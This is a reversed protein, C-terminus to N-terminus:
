HGRFFMVYALVAAANVTTLIAIKGILDRCQDSCSELPRNVWELLRIPLPGAAQNQEVEVEPATAPAANGALAAGGSVAADELMEQALADAVSPEPDPLPTPASAAPAAVAEVPGAPGAGDLQTFLANLELDETAGGAQPAPKSASQPKPSAPAEPSVRAAAPVVSGGKATPNVSPTIQDAKGPAPEDAEALLREIEEGALQALLDDTNGSNVPAASLPDPLAVPAQGM